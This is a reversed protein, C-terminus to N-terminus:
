QTLAGSVVAISTPGFGNGYLVITEGPKAPTTSGPYLTTPGLLSGGVHTAAAYGGAFEFFGPALPRLQVTVPGSTGVGTTVQVTIPGQSSDLPTLVNVQTPSIFYVFAPKGNVMVSVGHLAIPLQNNVFDPGQWCYGPACDPSSVGAPALNVGKIEVWTNQAIEPVEGTANAVATIM